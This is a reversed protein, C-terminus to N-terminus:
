PNTILTRTKAATLDRLPQVTPDELVADPSVVWARAFASDGPALETVQEFVLVADHVVPEIRAPPPRLVAVRSLRRDAPPAPGRPGHDGLELYLHLVVSGPM